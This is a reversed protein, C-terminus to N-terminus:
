MRHTWQNSFHGYYIFKTDWEVSGIQSLTVNKPFVINQIRCYTTLIRETLLKYFLHVSLFCFMILQGHISFLITGLVTCHFNSDTSSSVLYTVEIISKKSEKCISPASSNTCEFMYM